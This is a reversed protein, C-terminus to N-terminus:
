ELGPGSGRGSNIVLGMRFLFLKSAEVWSKEQENEGERGRERERVCVSFYM